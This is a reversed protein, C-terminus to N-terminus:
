IQNFEMDWINHIIKFWVSLSVKLNLNSQGVEENVKKSLCYLIRVTIIVQIIGYISQENLPLFPHPKKTNIILYRKIKTEFQEM